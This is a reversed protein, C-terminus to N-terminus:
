AYIFFCLYLLISMIVIWLFILLWDKWRHRRRKIKLITVFSKVLEMQPMCRECVDFTTSKNQGVVPVTITKCETEEGCFYCKAKM